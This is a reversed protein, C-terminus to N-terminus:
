GKSRQRIIERLHTHRVTRLRRADAIEANGEPVLVRLGGPHIRFNLPPLLECAEGDVGVFVTAAESRITFETVTWENWARSLQPGLMVVGVIDHVGRTGLAAIGLEGGDIAPREGLELWNKYEYPNNSVLVMWADDVREGEPGDFDLDFPEAQSGILDPLRSLTTDLKADRYSEEQVIRAYLGLSVNNVFPRDGVTGYDIRREIGDFFADLAPRPDDRDLGLDLALHNRTGAPVCVYPIDAEIAISAVFAQSGDGGAMGIADAGEGVADWALRGLDVGPELVKTDIGRDAALDVLGFRGVKGGGSKPNCILVPRVPPQRHVVVTVSTLAHPSSRLASRGAWLAVGVLVALVVLGVVMAVPGALLAVDVAVLAGLGVVAIAVGLARLAGREVLAWWAGAAFTVAAALGVLIEWRAQVVFLIGLVVIGLWASLAVVAWMRAATASKKAAM